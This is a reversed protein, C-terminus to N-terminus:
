EGPRWPINELRKNTGSAKEQSGEITGSAQCLIDMADLVHRSRSRSHVSMPDFTSVHMTHVAYARAYFVTM